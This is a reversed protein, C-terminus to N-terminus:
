RRKGTTADLMLKLTEEGVIRVLSDRGRGCRAEVLHDGERLNRVTLTGGDTNDVMEGDVMVGCKAPKTTIEINGFPMRTKGSFVNNSDPWVNFRTNVLELDQRGSQDIVLLDFRGSRFRKNKVPTKGLEEGDLFVSSGEPDTEITVTGFGGREPTAEEVPADAALAIGAALLLAASLVNLMKM